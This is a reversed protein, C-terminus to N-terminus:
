GTKQVLLLRGDGRVVHRIAEQQGPRFQAAPDAVGARLLELARTAPFTMPAIGSDFRMRASDRNRSRPVRGATIVSDVGGGVM